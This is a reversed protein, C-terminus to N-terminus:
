KGGGPGFNPSHQAFCGIQWHDYNRLIVSNQFGDVQYCHQKSFIYWIDGEPATCNKSYTSYNIDM